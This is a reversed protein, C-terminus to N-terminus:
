ETEGTGPVAPALGLERQQVLHPSFDPCDDDLRAALRQAAKESKGRALEAGNVSVVRYEYEPGANM